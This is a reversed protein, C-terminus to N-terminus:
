KRDKWIMDMLVHLSDAIVLAVWMIACFTLFQLDYMPLTLHMYLMIPIIWLMLYAIRLTASIPGSHSIWSRHPVVKQYPIWIWRLLGWRRYIRSHLDLDPSLFYTSVAIGIALTVTTKLDFGLAVSAGSIPIIAAIGVKDHTKYGPM